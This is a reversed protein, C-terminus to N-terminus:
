SKGDAGDRQNYKQELERKTIRLSIYLFLIIAILCCVSIISSYFIFHHNIAIGKRDISGIKSFEGADIYQIIESILASQMEHVSIGFLIAFSCVLILLLLFSWKLVKLMFVNTNSRKNEM